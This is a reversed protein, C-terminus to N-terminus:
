GLSPSFGANDNNVLVASCGAWCIYNNEFCGSGALSVVWAGPDDSSFFISLGSIEPFSMALLGNRFGYFDKIGSLGRRAM